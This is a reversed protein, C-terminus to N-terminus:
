PRKASGEEIKIKLEEEFKGLEAFKLKHENLKAEDKEEAILQKLKLRMEKVSALKKEMQEKSPKV